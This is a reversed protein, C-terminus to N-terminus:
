NGRTGFQRRLVPPGPPPTLDTRIKDLLREAACEDQACHNSRTIGYHRLCIDINQAITDAFPIDNAIHQVLLQSACLSHTCGTDIDLLILCQSLAM